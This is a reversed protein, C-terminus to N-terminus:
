GCRKISRVSQRLAALKPDEAQYVVRYSADPLPLAMLQAVDLGKMMPTLSDATAATLLRLVAGLRRAGRDSHGM